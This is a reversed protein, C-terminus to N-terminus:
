RLTSVRRLTQAVADYDRNAVDGARRALYVPVPDRPLGHPPDIEHLRQHAATVRNHLSVIPAPFYAVANGSRCLELASETHTVYHRVTRAIRDDPWGDLGRGRTPSGHIARVPAAFPLEAFDRTAITRFSELGFIGMRIEAVQEHAVGRTPEPILTVAVDIHHEVLAHELEGPVFYRLTLLTGPATRLLESAFYTLFAEHSGYRLRHEARAGTNVENPLAAIEALLPQARRALEHGKDTISIGRGDPAVLQAGVESELQKVAKSLATPTLHLVKAAGRISGVEAVVCFYKLRNFEVSECYRFFLRKHKVCPAGVREIGSVPM